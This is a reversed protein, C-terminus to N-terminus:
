DYPGKFTALGIGAQKMKGNNMILVWENAKGAVFLSKM